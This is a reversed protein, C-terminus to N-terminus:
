LARCYSVVICKEACGGITESAAIVVVVAIPFQAVKRPDAVSRFEYVYTYRVRNSDRNENIFAGILLARRLAISRTNQICRLIYRLTVYRLAICRLAVGRSPSSVSALRPSALRGFAVPSNSVVRATNEYVYM